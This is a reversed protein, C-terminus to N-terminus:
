SHSRKSKRHARLFSSSSFWLFILTLACYLLFHTHEAGHRWAEHVRYLNQAFFLAFLAFFLGTVELWLVSSAHTFPGWVAQGFRRAGRGVSHTKGASARAATAVKERTNEINGYIASPREPRAKEPFAPTQNGAPEAAQSPARDQSNAQIVEGARDRLLNSAVRVGIGLVRGFKRSEM